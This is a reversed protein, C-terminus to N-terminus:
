KSSVASGQRDREYTDCSLVLPVLSFFLLFICIYIFLYIGIVTLYVILFVNVWVVCVKQNM